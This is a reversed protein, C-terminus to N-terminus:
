EVRLVLCKLYETEPITLIVPTIPRPAVASSCACAGARMAQLRPSSASSSRPPFCPALLLLDGPHRGASAHQLGAPEAGQLRPARQRRRATSKAFAPPDLVITDYEAGAEAQGRMFEFADAKVWEVEVGGLAERNADLNREAVELAAQSVDVGTVSRCVRALHLAFGGQYTCVDLAEGFGHRAAAAYNARQDLFAGTKQGADADYWFRLGNLHFETATVPAPDRAYLPTM